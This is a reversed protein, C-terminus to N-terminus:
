NYALLTRFHQSFKTDSYQIWVKSETHVPAEKHIKTMSNETSYVVGSIVMRIKATIWMGSLYLFAHM